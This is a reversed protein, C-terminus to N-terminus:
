CLHYFESLWLTVSLHIPRMASGSALTLAFYHSSRGATSVSDYIRYCIVTLNDRNLDHLRISPISSYIWEEKVEARHSLPQDADPGTRRAGVFQPVWHTHPQSPVVAPRSTKSFLLIEHRQLSQFEPDDM